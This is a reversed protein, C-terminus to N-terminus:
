LKTGPKSVCHSEMLITKRHTLMPSIKERYEPYRDYINMLSDVIQTEQIMTKVQELTTGSLCWQKIKIGTQTTVHFHPKGMFLGTRDKSAVAHHKLNLDLVLTMEYDLGDRTIGKLGVKEPVVKGGKDTLVYDQKTRITAIIHAPSQLMKQVFANHRPTLKNWNAFSNGMMQSHIDLIGGTSEWEHSCSDVIIVEMGETECTEIAQIYDEPSFQNRIPLVNYDGLHEYLDASNNETDIVAVKNWNACLGYAILLASYTKGSGSPGQLGLKIRAQKREAKRIKMISIKPEVYVSKQNLV